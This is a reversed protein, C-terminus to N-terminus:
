QSCINGKLLDMNKTDYSPTPASSRHDNLSGALLDMLLKPPVCYRESAQFLGFWPLSSLQAGSPSCLTPTPSQSATELTFHGM